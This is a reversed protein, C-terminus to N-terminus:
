YDRNHCKDLRELYIKMLAEEPLDPFRRRLGHVFLQRSFESLEFAKDLREESTMRRLAEIYIRHNPRKKMGM